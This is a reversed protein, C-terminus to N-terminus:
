EILSVRGLTKLRVNQSQKLKLWTWRDAAEEIEPPIPTGKVHKTAMSKLLRAAQTAETKYSEKSKNPSSTSYYVAARPRPTQQPCAHSKMSVLKGITGCNCCVIPLTTLQVRLVRPCLTVDGIYVQTNCIPCPVNNSQRYEFWALLCDACFNHECTTQVTPLGLICQCIACIFLNADAASHLIDLYHPVPQSIYPPINLTLCHSTETGVDQTRICNPLGYGSRKRKIPRGGKCLTRYLECTDCKGTRSHKDWTIITTERPGSRSDSAEHRLFRICRWCLYRPHVLADDQWVNINFAREAEKTYNTCVTSSNKHLGTTTLRGCVRCLKNLAEQHLIFSM